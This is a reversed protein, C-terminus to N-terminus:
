WKPLCPRQDDGQGDAHLWRRGPSGSLAGSETSPLWELLSRRLERYTPREAGCCTFSEAAFRSSLSQVELSLNFDQPRSETMLATSYRRRARLRCPTVYTDPLGNRDATGRRPCGVNTLERGSTPPACFKATRAWRSRASGAQLGASVELLRPNPTSATPMACFPQARCRAPTFARSRASSIAYSGMPPLIPPAHWGRGARHFWVSTAPMEDVYIPMLCQLQPSPPWGGGKARLPTDQANILAGDGFGGWVLQGTGPVDLATPTDRAVAEVSISLRRHGACGVGTGVGNGRPAAWKKAMGQVFPSRSAVGKTTKGFIKGRQRHFYDNPGVRAATPKISAASFWGTTSVSAYPM